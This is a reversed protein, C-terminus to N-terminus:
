CTLSTMNPKDGKGAGSSCLQMLSGNRGLRALIEQGMFNYAIFPYQKLVSLNPSSQSAVISVQYVM